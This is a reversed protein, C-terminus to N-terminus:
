KQKCRKHPPKPKMAKGLMLTVNATAQALAAALAGSLAITAGAQCHNAEAIEHIAESVTQERM